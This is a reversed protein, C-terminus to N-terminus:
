SGMNAAFYVLYYVRMHTAVRLSWILLLPLQASANATIAFSLFRSFIFVHNQKHLPVATRHQPVKNGSWPTIWAAAECLMWIEMYLVTAMVAAALVDNNNNYHEWSSVPAWGIHWITHLSQPLWGTHRIYLTHCDGLRDFQIYLNHRDGLIDFQIYLTHCDGLIDFQIYLNHCDGLIDFQIYLNHCDGLIDNYTFITATVWYTLIYTFIATTVWYTLIYTFIATTVWYTLIYTFITTTVWYTLNYTFVTAMQQWWYSTVANGVAQPWGYKQLQVCVFANWLTLPDQTCGNKIVCGMLRRMGDVSAEDGNRSPPYRYICLAYWPQLYDGCLEVTCSLM